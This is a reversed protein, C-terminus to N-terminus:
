KTTEGQITLGGLATYIKNSPSLGESWKAIIHMSVVRDVGMPVTWIGIHSTIM